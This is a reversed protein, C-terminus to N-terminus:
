CIAAPKAPTAKTKAAAQAAGRDMLATCAGRSSLSRAINALVSTFAVTDCAELGAVQEKSV